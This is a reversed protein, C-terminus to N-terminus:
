PPRTEVHSVMLCSLARGHAHMFVCAHACVGGYACAWACVRTQVRVGTHAHTCSCMDVYVRDCGWVGLAESLGAAEAPLMRTATSERSMATPSPLTDAPPSGCGDGALPCLSAGLPGWNTRVVGHDVGCM